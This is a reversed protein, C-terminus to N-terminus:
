QHPGIRFFQHKKMRCMSGFTIAHLPPDKTPAVSL